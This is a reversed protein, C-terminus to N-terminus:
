RNDEYDLEGPEYYYWCGADWTVGISSSDFVETVEGAFPEDGHDLLVVRDGISFM